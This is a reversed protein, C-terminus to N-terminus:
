YTFDHCADNFLTKRHSSHLKFVISCNRRANSSLWYKLCHTFQPSYHDCYEHLTTGCYHIIVQM